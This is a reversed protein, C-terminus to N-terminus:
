GILGTVVLSVVSDELPHLDQAQSHVANDVGRFYTSSLECTYTRM